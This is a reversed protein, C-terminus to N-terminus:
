DKIGYRGLRGRVNAPLYSTDATATSVQDRVRTIMSVEQVKLAPGEHTMVVAADVASKKSRLAADTQKADVDQQYKLTNLLANRIYKSRDDENSITGDGLKLYKALDENSMGRLKENLKIASTTTYDFKKGSKGMDYLVDSLKSFNHEIDKGDLSLGANGLISTMQDTTIKNLAQGFIWQTGETLVDQLKGKATAKDKGHLVDYRLKEIEGSKLTLDSLYSSLSSGSRFTKRVKDFIKESQAGLGDTIAALDTDTLSDFSGNHAALKGIASTLKTLEEGEVSSALEGLESMSIGTKEFFRMDNVRNFDIKDQNAFMEKQFSNHVTGFTQAYDRLMSHKHGKLLAEVYSGKGQEFSSVSMRDKLFRAIAYRREDDSMSNLKATVEESFVGALNKNNLIKHFTQDADLSGLLAENQLANPDLLGKMFEGPAFVNKTDGFAGQYRAELAAQSKRSADTEVNRFAGGALTFISHLDKDGDLTTLFYNDRGTGVYTSGQMGERLERLTKGGLIGAYKRVFQTDTMRRNPDMMGSYFDYMDVYDNYALLDELSNLRKRVIRDAAHVFSDPNRLRKMASAVDEGDFARRTDSRVADQAWKYVSLNSSSVKQNQEIWPNGHLYEFTQASVDAATRGISGIVTDHVSAGLKEWREGMAEIPRGVGRGASVYEFLAQKQRMQKNYEINTGIQPQLIDRALAKAAADDLEVGFNSASLQKITYAANSIRYELPASWDQMGPQQLVLEELMGRMAQDLVKGEKLSAASAMINNKNMMAHTMRNIGGSLMNSTASQLAGFYGGQNFSQNFQGASFGTGGDWGAYLVPMGVTWSNKMGATVATMRAAINQAGGGAALDAASMIGRKEMEQMYALNRMAPRMGVFAPNGFQGYAALSMNAATEVLSASDVGLTRSYGMADMGLSQAFGKAQFVNIGMDKMQKIVTMTERVDKSNMVGMLFKVVHSATEVQKLLDDASSGKFMNSQLGMMTMERFGELGMRPQLSNTTLTDRLALRELGGIALQSQRLDFGNGIRPSMRRMSAVDRNHRTAYELVPDTIMGLAVSAATGIPAGLMWAGMEGFLGKTGIGMAGLMKRGAWMSAGYNVLEEALGTGAAVAMNSNRMALERARETYFELPSINSPSYHSFISGFSNNGIYNAMNPSMAGLYVGKTGVQVYQNRSLDNTDPTMRGLKTGVTSVTQNLSSLTLNLTQFSFALSDRFSRMADKLEASLQNGPTLMGPPSGMYAMAMPNQLNNASSGETYAMHGMPNMPSGLAASMNANPNASGSGPTIMQQQTPNIGMASTFGNLGPQQM